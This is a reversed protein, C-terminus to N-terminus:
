LSNQISYWDFCFTIWNRGNNHYETNWIGISYWFHIWSKIQEILYYSLSMIILFLM